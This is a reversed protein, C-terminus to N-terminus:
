QPHGANGGTFHGLQGFGHQVGGISVWAVPQRAALAEDALHHGIVHSLCGRSRGEGHSRADLLVQPTRGGCPGVAVQELTRMILVQELM